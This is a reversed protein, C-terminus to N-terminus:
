LWPCGLFRVGWVGAKSELDIIRTNPMYAMLGALHQDSEYCAYGKFPHEYGSSLEYFLDRVYEEEGDTTVLTARPLSGCTRTVGALDVVNIDHHLYVRRVLGFLEKGVEYRPITFTRAHVLTRGEVVVNSIDGGEM